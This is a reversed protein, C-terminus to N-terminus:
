KKYGGESYKKERIDEDLWAYVDKLDNECEVRFDKTRIDGPDFRVSWVKGDRTDLCFRVYKIAIRHRECTNEYMNDGWSNNEQIYNMLELCQEPTM